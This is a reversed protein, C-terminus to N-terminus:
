YSVADIATSIADINFKWARESTKSHGRHKRGGAGPRNQWCPKLRTEARTEERRIENEGEREREKERGGEGGRKETRRATTMTSTTAAAAAAAEANFRLTSAEDQRRSALRWGSFRVRRFRGPLSYRSLSIHHSFVKGSRKSRGTWDRQGIKERSASIGHDSIALRAGVGSTSKRAVAPRCGDGGRSGRPNGM